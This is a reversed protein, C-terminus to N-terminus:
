RGRARKRTLRVACAIVFVSLAAYSIGRFINLEAGGSYDLQVECPGSCRPDLFMSGLGDRHVPEARGNVTAHWGSHYNVQISLVQGPSATTTIHLRNRGEWRSEALPLSDDDLAAVYAALDTAGRPEKALISAAPVLHALSEGRRPVRYITVGQERWLAALVGEFQEPHVFPKWYEASERGSVAVADVGFAKLWLLSVRTDSASVVEQLARQQVRNYAMSWSSGSFQAVDSFANAWQAISGPFMVRSGALNQGAWTSARYEVTKTLDGPHLLRKALRREHVVQESALAILLFIVARRISVPARALWRAGAFAAILSLAAEMELQYRGPQPLLPRYLYRDMLPISSTVWAFLAFFQLTWSSTWRPLFHWLITWGLILVAFATITSFSWGSGEHGPDNAAARMANVVLPPYFAASMAYAFAGIGAVLALNSWLKQRDLVFVLCATALMTGTPGFASAMAGFFICLTAAAYYRAQRTRISQYLCLITLPLFVFAILHPTDDWASALFLRRTDWVSAWTANPDPVILQTPSTVSYMMAAAFSVGPARTMLWACVFLTLPAACYAIATIRDFALALSIGSLGHWMAMLGPLLPAYTLEFPIGGDWYPWWEARFWSGGGLRALAMWFGHMSAMFATEISFLERCIYVNVSVIIAAYIAARLLEARRIPNEPLKEVISM